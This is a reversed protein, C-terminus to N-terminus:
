FVFSFNFVRHVDRDFIKYNGLVIKQGGEERYGSRMMYYEYEFM